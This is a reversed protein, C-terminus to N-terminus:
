HRAERRCIGCTGGHRAVEAETLVLWYLRDTGTYECEGCLFSLHRTEVRWTAQIM